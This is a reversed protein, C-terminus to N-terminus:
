SVISYDSQSLLLTGDPNRTVMDLFTRSNTIGTLVTEGELDQSSIETLPSPQSV